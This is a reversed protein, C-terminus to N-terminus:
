HEIIRRERGGYMEELEKEKEIRIKEFEKENVKKGDKPAKIEKDDISALEINSAKIDREGDNISLMLIAGPLGHYNGPGIQVPIQSTFWAVVFDKDTEMVAKQCEYGIYKVKENTIKWIHNPLEDKVLFAKGMMGRQHTITKNSLNKYLIDEVDDDMMIKIQFAGDDSEINLDDLSEGKKTQYLSTNNKFLLEKQLSQSQPIMSKMSEDMGEFQIDLKVTETYSIKGEKQASSINISAAVTLILFLYKM